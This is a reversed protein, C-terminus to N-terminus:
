ASFMGLLVALSAPSGDLAVGRLFFSGAGIWNWLTGNLSVAYAPGGAIGQWSFGCLFYAIAAVSIACLSAMASHAVSRSRIMGANILLLGAGAAPILLICVACVAAALDPLTPAPIM